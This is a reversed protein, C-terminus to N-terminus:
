SLSEHQHVMTQKGRQVRKEWFVARSSSGFDGYVVIRDGRAKCQQKNGKLRQSVIKNCFGM